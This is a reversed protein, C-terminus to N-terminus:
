RRRRARSCAADFTEHLPGPERVRGTLRKHQVLCFFVTSMYGLDSDPLVVHRLRSYKEGVDNASPYVETTLVSWNKLPM